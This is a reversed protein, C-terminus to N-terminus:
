RRAFGLCTRLSIKVRCKSMSLEAVYSFRMLWSLRFQEAVCPKNLHRHALSLCRFVAERSCQGTLVIRIIKPHRERVAQLLQVGDMTPMQIDTVIVDCPHDALHRLAERVGPLFSMEWQNRLPRLMRQLGQLLLPDDDVFLIRKIGDV